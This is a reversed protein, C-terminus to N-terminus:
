QSFLQTEIENINSTILMYLKIKDEIINSEKFKKILTELDQKKKKKNDTELKIDNKLIGNILDNLKVQEESIKEKIEKMKLIKDNWNEISELQDVETELLKYIESM